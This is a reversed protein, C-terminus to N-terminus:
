CEPEQLLHRNQPILALTCAPHSVALDLWSLAVWPRQEWPLAQFLQNINLRSTDTENWERRRSPCVQLRSSQLSAWANHGDTLPNDLNGVLPPPRPWKSKHKRSRAPPPGGARLTSTHYIRATGEPAYGELAAIESRM